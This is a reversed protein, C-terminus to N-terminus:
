FPTEDDALCFLRGALRRFQDRDDASDNTSCSPLFRHMAYWRLATANGTKEATTSAGVGLLKAGHECAEWLNALWEPPQVAAYERFRELCRGIGDSPKFPNGWPSAPWGAFARGVYCVTARQEPTRLLNVKVVRINM